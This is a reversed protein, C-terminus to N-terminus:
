ESVAGRVVILVVGASGATEECPRLFQSAGANKSANRPLANSSASFGGCVGASTGEPGRVQCPQARGRPCACVGERRADQKPLSIPEPLFRSSHITPLSAGRVRLRCAKREFLAGVITLPDLRTGRAGGAAFTRSFGRPVLYSSTSFTARICPPSPL